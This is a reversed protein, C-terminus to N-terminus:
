GGSPRRVSLEGSPNLLGGGDGLPWHTWSLGVWTLQLGPYM